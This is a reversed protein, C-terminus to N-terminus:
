VLLKIATLMPVVHAVFRHSIAFKAATIWCIPHRAGSVLTTRIPERASFISASAKGTEGDTILRTPFVDM